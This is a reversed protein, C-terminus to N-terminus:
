GARFPEGGISVLRQVRRIHFVRPEQRLHCFADFYPLRLAEVTIARRNVLDGTGERSTYDMVVTSKDLAALGLAREIAKREPGDRSELGEALSRLTPAGEPGSLSRVMARYVGLTAECDALARHAVPMPVSCREALSVLSCRPLGFLDRAISLTCVTARFNPLSLGARDCEAMLFGLDFRANHAVLAAGDLMECLEPWVEPFRPADAVMEETIGHIGLAVEPIGREPRVLRSWRRPEGFCGGELRLVAVEVVRDGDAASLGTTEFDLFATPAEDARRDLLEPDSM